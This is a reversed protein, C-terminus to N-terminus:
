LKYRAIIKGNETLIGVVPVGGENYSKLAEDYAAAMFEEHESISAM